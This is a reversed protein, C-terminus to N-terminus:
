GYAQRLSFARRLHAKTKSQVAAGAESFRRGVIRRAEGSNAMGLDQGLLDAEHNSPGHVVHVEELACDIVATMIGSESVVEPRSKGTVIGSLVLRRDVASRPAKDTVEGEGFLFFRAVEFAVQLATGALSKRASVKDSGSCGRKQGSLSGCNNAARSGSSIANAGGAEALGVVPM